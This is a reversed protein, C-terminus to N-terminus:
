WKRVVAGIDELEDSKSHALQKSLLYNQYESLWACVKSMLFPFLGYMSESVSFM